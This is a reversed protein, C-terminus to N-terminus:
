KKEPYIGMLADEAIEKVEDSFDGTTIWKLYGKVLPDKLLKGRWKGFNFAADNGIWIFKGTEDVANEPHPFCFASLEKVTRPLDPYRHLQGFLSIETMHVDFEADHADDISTGPPMPYGGPGGFELYCNSLTHGRRMRYIHLPDVVHGSWNWEVEARKMEHKVFRIDFDKVNYGCIDVDTIKPALVPAVERFKPVPRFEECTEESPHYKPLKGCRTCSAIMEDTIRHKGANLIPIEPDILSKWKVPERDVYHKTISIQIIRDIEPNVGTTELDFVILPRELKLIKNLVTLLGPGGV